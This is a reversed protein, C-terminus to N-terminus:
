FTNLNMVLFFNFIYIHFVSLSAPFNKKWKKKKQINPSNFHLVFRSLVIYNTRTENLDILGLYIRVTDELLM